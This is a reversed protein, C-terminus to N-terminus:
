RVSLRSSGPPKRSPMAEKLIEGKWLVLYLIDQFVCAKGMVIGPSAPIGKLFCRAIEKEM